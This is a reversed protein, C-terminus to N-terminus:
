VGLIVKFQFHMYFMTKYLFESNLIIFYAMKAGSFWGLRGALRTLCRGSLGARRGLRAPWGLRGL